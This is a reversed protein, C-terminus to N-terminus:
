FAMALKVWVAWNDLADCDRGWEYSGGLGILAPSDCVCGDYGIAAYITNSLAGPTAGSNLNLDNCTIAVFSEDSAPVNSGTVSQCIEACSASVPNINCDGVLDYIGFNCPFKCLEVREKARWWFDYGLEVNWQCRQYHLAFWWDITSGPTVFVDQTLINIGPLSNSRACAQVVQLYRSWDGNKCLDFSRRECARLVYRYKFDTLLTLESNDCVWLTYDGIIGAGISGHDSGVMPEFIFEANSSNGTAAIGVIYPSLHNTDCYFWDYGFKIQVDDVGRSTLSCCKAFKGYLLNCQNLAECVNTVGCAVGPGNNEKECFNLEHKARMAAFAVSLWSHCFVRSLDFRFNFYAGAVSRRPRITVCSDFSSGGAAILNLWLSGVDGTGDEKVSIDCKKCPLFFEAAKKGDTSRQYFPSVQMSWWICDDECLVDHYWWYLSLNHQFVNNPTIERPRFFSHSGCDDKCGKNSLCDGCETRCPASQVNCGSSLGCPDCPNCQNGCNLGHTVHVVSLMSIVMVLHKMFRIKM